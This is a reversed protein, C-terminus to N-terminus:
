WACQCIKGPVRDGPAAPWRLSLELATRDPSWCFFRVSWGLSRGASIAHILYPSFAVCRHVMIFLGGASFMLSLSLSSFIQPRLFLLISLSPFSLGSLSLIQSLTGFLSVQSLTGFLSFTHALSLSGCWLMVILLGGAGGQRVRCGPPPFRQGAPCCCCAVPYLM